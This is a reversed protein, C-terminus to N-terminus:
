RSSSSADTVRVVSKMGVGGKSKKPGYNELVTRYDPYPQWRRRLKIRM